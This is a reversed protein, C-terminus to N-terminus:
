VTEPVDIAGHLVCPGADMCSAIVTSEVYKRPEVQIEKRTGELLAGALKEIQDASLETSVDVLFGKKTTEIRHKYQEPLHNTLVFMALQANGPQHKKKVKEGVKVLEGDEDMKYEEDVEEYEYGIASRFMQAVLFSDAIQKGVKCAAKVDPNHRKLENLWDDSHKGQYGVIAGIDSETMGVSVLNQLIPLLEMNFKTRPPLVFRREKEDYHQYRKEYNEM